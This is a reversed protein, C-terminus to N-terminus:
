RWVQWDRRAGEDMGDSEEGNREGLGGFEEKYDLLGMLFARVRWSMFIRCEVREVQLSRKAGTERVEVKRVVPWIM